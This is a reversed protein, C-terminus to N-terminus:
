LEQVGLRQDIAASGRVLAYVGMVLGVTALLSNHFFPIAAVYCAILGSVSKVYMNSLVWVGANTVIFFICSSLLSVGLANVYTPRKKLILGSLGALVLAGYVVPILRHFGLVADTLVMILLPFGFQLWRQKFCAVSLVSIAIVPSFNPPLSLFRCLSVLLLVGVVMVPHPLHHTRQFPIGSHSSHKTM